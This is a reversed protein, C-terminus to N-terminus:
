LPESGFVPLVSICAEYSLFCPRPTFMYFIYEINTFKIANFILSILFSIYHLVLPCLYGIMMKAHVYIMFRRAEQARIYDTGPEPHEEPQYEGEQKV